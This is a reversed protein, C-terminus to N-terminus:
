APSAGRLYDHLAASGALRLLSLRHLDEGRRALERRLRQPSGASDLERMVAEVAPLPYHARRLLAVAQAKRVEHADYVRYGTARDRSPRLLGMSEWVRLASTRVGVLGAVEGVRMVRGGGARTAGERATTLGALVEPTGAGRVPTPAALEEFAGLVRALDARERSLEAHSADVLALADEVRGAHVARMVEGTCQWGHGAAMSRVTRLAREHEGTFVRYGNDAREVPPLLGQDAYTRVQQVSIGARRALESVRLRVRSARNAVEAEM